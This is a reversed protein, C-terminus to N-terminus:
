FDQLTLETHAIGQETLHEELIQLAQPLVHMMAFYVTECEVTDDCTIEEIRASFLPYGSSGTERLYEICRALLGQVASSALVDTTVTNLLRLVGFYPNIFRLKNPQYM